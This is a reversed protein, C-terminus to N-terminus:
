SSISMPRRFSRRSPQQTPGLDQNMRPECAQSLRTALDRYRRLSERYAAYAEQVRKKAAELEAPLDKNEVQVFAGEPTNSLWLDIEEAFAMVSSRNKRAPRHIPFGFEVEYRQVTRVGRGVYASIEKWSNLIAPVSTRGKM